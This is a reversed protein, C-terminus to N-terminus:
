RPARAGPRRGVLLGEGRQHLPDLARVERGRRQDDAPVADLVRVPGTAARDPHARDDRDLLVGAPAGDQDDGLQGVLDVRVVQGLRDGLRDAVAPQGPDALDGVLRGVPDAAPQHDRQAPVRDGLDHQVVEVLVGLQLGREAGVHQGQDVPHRPRQPQVLEDAVVDRVLDLDDDPAGAVQQALGLLAGVDQARQELRDVLEVRHDRQDAALSDASAARPPRISSSSMSSIWAVAIRSMCSRRSAASSRCRSCRRTRASRPPSRRTCRSGPWRRGAARSRGRVLEGLDDLLVAVLPAGPQDGVVAVHGHLVQDGLLVHDDRDRAGAVRLARLGVEVPRLPAAALADLTRLQLLVVDDGM